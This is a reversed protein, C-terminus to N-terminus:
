FNHMQQYYYQENSSLEAQVVRLTVVVATMARVFVGHQYAGQRALTGEWYKMSLLTKDLQRVLDKRSCYVFLRRVQELQDIQPRLASQVFAPGDGQAVKSVSGALALAGQEFTEFM